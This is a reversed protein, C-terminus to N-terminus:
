YNRKELVTGGKQSTENESIHNILLRAERNTHIVRADEGSCTDEVTRELRHLSEGGWPSMIVSSCYFRM